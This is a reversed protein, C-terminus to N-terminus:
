AFDVASWLAAAPRVQSFRTDDPVLLTVKNARVTSPAQLVPEIGISDQSGFLAPPGQYIIVIENPGSGPGVTFFAASLTSSSIIVTNPISQVSGDDLDFQLRFTDGTQLQQDSSPNRNTITVLVGGTTGPTSLNPSVSLAARISTDISQGHLDTGLCLAGVLVLVWGCFNNFTKKRM